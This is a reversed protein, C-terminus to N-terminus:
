CMSYNISRLYFLLLRSSLTWPETSIHIAVPTQLRSGAAQSTLLLLWHSDSLEQWNKVKPLELNRILSWSRQILSSSKQDFVAGRFFLCFLQFSIKFCLESVLIALMKPSQQFGRPKLCITHTLIVSLTLSSVLDNSSTEEGTCDLYIRNSSCYFLSYSRSPSYLWNYCTMSKNPFVPSQHFNISLNQQLSKKQLPSSM